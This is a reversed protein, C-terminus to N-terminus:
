LYELVGRVLVEPVSAGSTVGITVVDDLLADAVHRVYDMVHAAGAGAQLAAEVPRVSNSSNVSAVVLVLDCQPAMAKVATQRNQTAYCMDDSPPNQLGPLRERLAGVTEM